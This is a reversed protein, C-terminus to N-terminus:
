RNKKQLSGNNYTIDAESKTNSTTIIFPNIVNYAITGGSILKSTTDLIEGNKIVNAYNATSTIAFSGIGETIALVSSIMNVKNEDLNTAKNLVAKSTEFVVGGWEKDTAAAAMGILGDGINGIGHLVMFLTVGASPAAGVCGGVVEVVGGITQFTAFVFQGVKFEGYPDIWNV